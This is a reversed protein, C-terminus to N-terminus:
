KEFDTVSIASDGGVLLPMDRIVGRTPTCILYANSELIAIVEERNVKLIKGVEADYYNGNHRYSIKFIRRDTVDWGLTMKAFKKIADYIKEAEDVDEVDPIFFKMIKDKRLGQNKSAVYRGADAPALGRQRLM